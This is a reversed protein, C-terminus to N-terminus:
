TYDSFIHAGWLGVIKSTLYTTKIKAKWVKKDMRKENTKYKPKNGGVRDKWQRITIKRESKNTNKTPFYM